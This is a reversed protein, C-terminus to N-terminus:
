ESDFKFERSLSYSKVHYLGEEPRTDSQEESVKNWSCKGGEQKKCVGLMSSSRPKANTTKEALYKAHRGGGSRNPGEKYIVKKSLGEHCDICLIVMKGLLRQSGKTQEVTSVM